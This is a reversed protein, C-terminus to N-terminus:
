IGATARRFDKKRPHGETHSKWLALWLEHCIQSWAKATQKICSDVSIM